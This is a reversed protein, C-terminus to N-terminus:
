CDDYYAPWVALEGDLERWRVWGIPELNKGEWGGDGVQIFNGEKRMLKYASRQRPPESKGSRLLRYRASASPADYLRVSDRRFFVDVARYGKRPEPNERYDVVHVKYASGGRYWAERGTKWDVIFRLAGSSIETVPFQAGNIGRPSQCTPTWSVPRAQRPTLYKPYEASLRTFVEVAQTAEDPLNYFTVAGVARRAVSKPIRRPDAAYVQDGCDALAPMALLLLVAACM